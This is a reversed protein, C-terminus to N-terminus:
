QGTAPAPQRAQALAREIVDNNITPAAPPASPGSQAPVAPADEMLGEHRPSGEARDHQPRKSSNARYLEIAWDPKVRIHSPSISSLNDSLIVLRRKVEDHGNELVNGTKVILWYLRAEVFIPMGPLLERAYAKVRMGRVIVPILDNPDETQRILVEIQPQTVRGEEIQKAGTAKFATVFGALMVKNGQYSIRARPADEDPQAEPGFSKPLIETQPIGPKLLSRFADQPPLETIDPASVRLATLKISYAGDDNLYGSMRGTVKINAGHEALAPWVDGKRIEWPLAQNVNNSQLLEGRGESPVPKYCMGSEYCINLMGSRYIFMKQNSFRASSSLM